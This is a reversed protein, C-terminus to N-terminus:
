VVSKRDTYVTIDDERWSQFGWDKIKKKPHLSCCLYSVDEGNKQLMKAQELEFSGTMNNSPEPYSRGIVWIKM